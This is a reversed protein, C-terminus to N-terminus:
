CGVAGSASGSARAEVPRWATDAAVDDASGLDNFRGVSTPLTPLASSRQSTPRAAEAVVIGAAAGEAIPETGADILAARLAGHHYGV